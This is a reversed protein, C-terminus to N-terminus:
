TEAPMMEQMFRRDFHVSALFALSASIYPDVVECGFTPLWPRSKAHQAGGDLNVEVEAPRSMVAFHLNLM